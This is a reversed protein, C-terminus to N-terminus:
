ELPAQKSRLKKHNEESVFGGGVGMIEPYRSIETFDCSSEETDKVILWESTTSYNSARFRLYHCKPLYAHRLYSCIGNVIM